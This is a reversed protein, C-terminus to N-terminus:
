FEKMHPSRVFGKIFARHPQKPGGDSARQKLEIEAEPRAQREPHNAHIRSM